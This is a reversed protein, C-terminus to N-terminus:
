LPLPANPLEFVPIDSSSTATFTATITTSNGETMLLREREEPNLVEEAHIDDNNLDYMAFRDSLVMTNFTYVFKDKKVRIKTYSDKFDRGRIVLNTFSNFSPADRHNSREGKWLVYEKYLDSLWVKTLNITESTIAHNMFLVIEPVIRSQCMKYFNTMVRSQIPNFETLDMDMLYYYFASNLNTNEGNLMNDYLYLAYEPTLRKAESDIATFRRDDQEIIVPNVSNTTVVVNIFSPQTITDMGKREIEITRETLLEKFKNSEDQVDKRSIENLVCFIVTEIKSNFRGLVGEVKATTLFYKSGIIANGFWNMFMSKGTGQNGTFIPAVGTKQGVNQVVSALWKMFYQFFPEENNCLQEKVFGLLDDLHESSQRQLKSAKLGEFMNFVIEDEESYLREITMPNFSFRHVIRMDEDNIWDFIFQKTKGEHNGYKVHRFKNILNVHKLFEFQGNPRIHGYGMPTMVKFTTKEFEKKVTEYSPHDSKKKEKTEPPYMELYAKLNDVRLTDKLYTLGYKKGVCLHKWKYALVGMEEDDVDKAFRTLYSKFTDYSSHMNRMCKLLIKPFSQSQKTSDKLHSLIRTIEDDGMSLTTSYSVSSTESESDSTTHVSESCFERQLREWKAKQRSLAKFLPVVSEASGFRDVFMYKIYGSSWESPKYKNCSQSYRHFLEYGVDDDLGAKLWFGINRWGDYSDGYGGNPEYSRIRNDYDMLTDIASELEELSHRTETIHKMPNTSYNKEALDQFENWSICPIDLDGNEVENDLPVGSWLGNQLELFGNALKVNKPLHEPKDTLVFWGKWLKKSPSRTRPCENLLKRFVPLMEAHEHDQDFMCVMRTDCMAVISLEQHGKELIHENQYAVQEMYVDWKHRVVNEMYRHNHEWDNSVPYGDSPIGVNYVNLPNYVKQYSGDSQRTRLCGYPVWEIQHNKLFTKVKM